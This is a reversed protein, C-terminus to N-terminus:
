KEVVAIVEVEILQDPDALRTVEVATSPPFPRPFYKVMLEGTKNLDDYNRVYYNVKVIDAMTAGAAELVRKLNEYTQATQAVIDGKGVLKMQQDFAAQGAVYITNGVKFAHSYGRPKFVNSPNIVERAM